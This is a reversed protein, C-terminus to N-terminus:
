PMQHRLASIKLTSSETALPQLHFVLTVPISLIGEYSFMNNVSILDMGRSTSSIGLTDLRFVQNEMPLCLIRDDILEFPGSARLTDTFLFSMPNPLSSVWVEPALTVVASISCVGTIEFHFIGEWRPNLALSDVISPIASEDLIVLELSLSDDPQWSGVPNGGLPEISFVPMDPTEEPPQLGKDCFILSSFVALIFWFRRDLM